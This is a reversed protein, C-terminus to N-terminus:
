NIDNEEITKTKFNYLKGGEDTQFAIGDKYVYGGFVIGSPIPSTYTFYNILDKGKRNVSYVSISSKLPVGFSDVPYEGYYIRDKYQGFFNGHKTLTKIKKLKKKTSQALLMTQVDCDEGNCKVCLMYDGSFARIEFNKMETKLKKKKISVSCVTHTTTYNSKNYVLKDLYVKGSAVASLYYLAKGNKITKLKASKKKKVNYKYLTTKKGKTVLYYATKGNSLAQQGKITKFKYAAASSFTTCMVIGMVLLAVSLFGRAFNKM